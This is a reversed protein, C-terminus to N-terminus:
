GAPGAAGGKSKKFGPKGKTRDCGTMTQRKWM